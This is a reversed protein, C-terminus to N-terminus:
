AADHGPPVIHSVQTITNSGLIKHNVPWLEAGEGALVWSGPQVLGTEEALLLDPLYCAKCHDQCRLAFTPLTLKSCLKHALLM